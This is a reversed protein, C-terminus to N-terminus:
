VLSACSIAPRLETPLLGLWRASWEPAHDEQMVLIHGCGACQHVTHGELSQLVPVDQVREMGTGCAVCAFSDQSQSTRM